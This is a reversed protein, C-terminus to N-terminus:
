PLKPYKWPNREMDAQLGQYCDDCIIGSDALTLNPFDQRYEDLAEEDSWGKEFVGKCAECRYENSKM